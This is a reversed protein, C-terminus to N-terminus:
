AVTVTVGVPRLWGLIGAYGSYLWAHASNLRMEAASLYKGRDDVAKIVDDKTYGMQEFVMVSDADAFLCVAVHGYTPAKDWIVCDGARPRAGGGAPIRQFQAKLIPLSEYRTFLESAGGIGETRKLGLDACYQRFLDVCEAGYAGDFDVPRGNYRKVFDDMLNM